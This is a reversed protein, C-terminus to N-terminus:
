WTAHLVFGGGLVMRLSVMINNAAHGGFVDYM